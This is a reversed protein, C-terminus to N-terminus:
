FLTAQELGPPIEIPKARGPMRRVTAWKAGGDQTTDGAKTEEKTTTSAAARLRINDRHVLQWQQVGNETWEVVVKPWHKAPDQMVSVVRQEHCARSAQKTHPYLYVTQGVRLDEPKHIM